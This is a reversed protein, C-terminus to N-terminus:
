NCGCGNGCFPNSPLAYTSSTPYRVVGCMANQLELASVKDRLNQIENAQIMGRTANGESMITQQLSMTQADLKSSLGHLSNNLDYTASAIGDGISNVRQGIDNFHQNYLIEQTTADNNGGRGGFLNGGGGFGMFLFLLVLVWIWNNSNSEANGCVSAIDSLTMESM